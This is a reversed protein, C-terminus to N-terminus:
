TLVMGGDIMWRYSAIAQEDPGESLVEWGMTPSWFWIGWDPGIAIAGGIKETPEKRVFKPDIM